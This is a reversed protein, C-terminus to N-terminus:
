TKKAKGRAKWREARAALTQPTPKGALVDRAGGHIAKTFTGVTPEDLIAVCFAGAKSAATLATERAPDPLEVVLIAGRGPAAASDLTKVVVGIDRAAATLLAVIEDSGAVVWIDGAQSKQTEPTKQTASAAEPAVAKVALGGQSEKTVTEEAV